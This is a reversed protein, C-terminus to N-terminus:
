NLTIQVRRNAERGKETKNSAVPNLEGYGTATLEQATIGTNVLYSKVANAREESLEQNHAETGEASAYGKLLFKYNPFQKILSAFKDLMQISGTKLVASNFDFQIKGAKFESPDPMPANLPLQAVPAGDTKKPKETPKVVEAIAPAPKTNAALKKPKCSSITLALFAVPIVCFTIPFKKM